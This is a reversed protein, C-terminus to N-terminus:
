ASSHRFGSARNGRDGGNRIAALFHEFSGGSDPRIRLELRCNDKRTEHSIGGSRVFHFFVESGTKILAIDMGLRRGIKYIISDIPQTSTLVIVLTM